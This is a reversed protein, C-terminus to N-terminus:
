LTQPIQKRRAILHAREESTVYMMRWGLVHAWRCANNPSIGADMAAEKSSGGRAMVEGVIAKIEHVHQPNRRHRRLAQARSDDTIDSKM